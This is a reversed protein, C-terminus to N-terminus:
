YPMLGSNLEGTVVLAFDQPPHLLNSASLQILYDGPAPRDLRIVEVNNDVDPIKLGFALDENGVWKTNTQMDQLFLNLNNQLARAPFDTWALCIRLWDGGSVSFRLRFRQGTRVFQKQQDQWDDLFELRLNPFVPNPFAWAMYVCGFGQHQNALRDHDAIADPATLWRTSNILTAKVLAASPSRGREKAYYERTLAACGSVLPASMSTGGMYAYEPNGQYPGWFNRLPARSSKTSVIDTGPAVLDPKIRRDDCPGRSSFAALAEPNGSIPESSVPPDPFDAPWAQGYCLGAYAGSTRSTRSAGVTLANKSTAPAGMSLWDVFGSPSHLNAAAQGENGASIVILMDRRKAIFEDVENSNLTYTAPVAAGWSNNHIRAGQQYAEEFLDGLDLPLGGLGGQADLLSQLFLKAKPAVGRIQGGSASGDGLISGSVHTGHGHTDAYNNPRGLAVVGVIRGQFDPHADDLGTDAVAVIEGDGTQALRPTPAAPSSAQPDVGLLVRSVDNHLKPEVYEEVLAVEPLAALDDIVSANELIYVRIKRGSAGAVSVGHQRAWDLVQGLDGADHLRVDYPIIRLGSASPVLGRASTDGGTTFSVPGTDEPGYLRVEEVFPLANVQNAQEFTLRATYHNLPVYELLEVHLGELTQRWGEMLPGALGILYFTPRTRDPAAGPTEPPPGGSIGTLGREQGTEGGRTEATPHEQVVQVILGQEQLRPIDNDDVEGFVYSETEQQVQMFQHAAREESEHMFHALVKKKGM